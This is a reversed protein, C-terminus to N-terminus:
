RTVATINGTFLLDLSTGDDDIEFRDKMIAAPIHLIWKADQHILSGSLTVPETKRITLDEVTKGVKKALLIGSGQVECTGGVRFHCATQSFRGDQQLPISSPVTHDRITLIGAPILTRISGILPSWSFRLRGDNANALDIQEITFTRVGDSRTTVTGTVSGKLACTATSRRPTLPGPSLVITILASSSESDIRMQLRETRPARPTRHSQSRPQKAHGPSSATLTGELGAPAALPPAFLHCGPLLLFLVAPAIFARLSSAPAPAQRSDPM